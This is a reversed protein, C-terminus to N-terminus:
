PRQGIHKIELSILQEYIIGAEKEVEKDWESEASFAVLSFRFFSM